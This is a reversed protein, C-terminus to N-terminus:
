PDIHKTQPAPGTGPGPLAGQAKGPEAQAIEKTKRDLDKELHARKRKEQRARKRWRGQSLWSSSGGVIVGLIFLAFMVVYLPFAFALAPTEQSFPDFSLIVNHRNAIAIIVAVLTVFILTVLTRFRM